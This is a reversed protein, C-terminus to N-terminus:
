RTLAGIVAATTTVVACSSAAFSLSQEHETRSFTATADSVVFTEIDNSYADLATAIIGLHAYVGIVVLQDRGAARLEELLPSRYFASYRWKTLVREDTQPALEPVVSRQAETARMGPGWLDALLGREDITMDGPQASFFVPIGARRAAALVTQARELLAARLAPASSFAGLFYEQMDHVLLSARRPDVQWSVQAGPLDMEGPLEYEVVERLGSQM